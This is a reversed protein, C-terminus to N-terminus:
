HKKRVDLVYQVAFAAAVGAALGLAAGLIVNLRTDPGVLTAAAARSLIQTNTQFFTAEKVEFDLAKYASEAMYRERELRELELLDQAVSEQLSDVDGELQTTVGSVIDEEAQLLRIVEALSQQDRLLEATLQGRDSIVRSDLLQLPLEELSGGTDLALQASELLLGLNDLAQRHEALLDVKKELQVGSAGLMSFGQEGGPSDVLVLGTEQRFATLAEEASDLNQSLTDLQSSWSLQSSHAEEIYQEAWTNAILTAKQPDNAEVRIRFLAPNDKDERLTVMSTLVGPKKERASLNPGIAEIVRSEVAASRVLTPYLKVITKDTSSLRPSEFYEFTQEALSVTAEYTPEQVLSVAAAALTAVVLVVLVVKWQRLVVDLYYQLNLDLEM